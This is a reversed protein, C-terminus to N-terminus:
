QCAFVQLPQLGLDVAGELKKNTSWHFEPNVNQTPLLSAAGNYVTGDSNWRTLYAYDNIADSGTLGYSARFKGFSIFPLMKKVWAEETFIWAAGLSGFNGYQRGEGFRSSGDRRMTFNIIYKSELNYTLRGFIAAYKYEGSNNSGNKTPASAINGLLFDSTYSTGRLYSADTTTQALSSGALVNIKGKGLVASYNVQPEVIWNKNNNNGLFSTGTPSLVPDQSAITQFYQQTTQANNYGLSTSVSLGKVLQYNLVLNSNLFGTKSTYPQKLGAFPYKNRSTSNAGGWGAYNLNGASDFIAPADPAFNVQGPLSVMDSQAFSYQNTFTFNFRQDNSRHTISLSASARQDAGSVTLINTTHNYAAGIRFSTQANGGSLGAQVDTTKGIGNYLAKQWDTYKNTNWLVLDYAQGANAPATYDINDNKFAEKRMEIYQQTNLMDWYRSVATTGEQVHLDLKSKGPKGKKTTILIVGNAGRSGYIATADADKLIEISEIDAPNISFFPSQGSAPGGGSIGSQVFGKSGSSYSAGNGVELVTLPVGDIIYLPDPIFSPDISSRGRLEIKIPASAFGSKLNVDLGAIKGQLALLPNMVPQRQMEESTVKGIDGTALRQSTTGYAQVVVKDLDNTTASLVVTLSIHDKIPLSQSKYGIFTVSVVDDSNVNRLTFNGNADTVTGHGTRKVTINANVLPEGKDNTVRGHISKELTDLYLSPDLTGNSGPQRDSSVAVAKKVITITNGEVTFELAQPQGKICEKLIDTISVNKLDLTVPKTRELLDYNYFVGFGTQKKISAFVTKLPVDKGTFSVTQSYTAASVQLCFAFLLFASLQMTLLVQKPLSAFWHFLRMIINTSYLCQLLSSKGSSSIQVVSGPNSPQQDFKNTLLCLLSKVATFLSWFFQM